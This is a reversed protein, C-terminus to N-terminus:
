GKLRELLHDTIRCNWTAELESRLPGLKYNQILETEKAKLLQYLQATHSPRLQVLSGSSHKGKWRPALIEGDHIRWGPTAAVLFGDEDVFGLTFRVTKETQCLNLILLTM